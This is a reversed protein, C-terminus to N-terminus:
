ALSRLKGAALVEGEGEGEIGKAGLGSAQKVMRSYGTAIGIRHRKPVGIAVIRFKSRPLGCAFM